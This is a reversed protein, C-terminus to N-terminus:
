MYYGFEKKFREMDLYPIEGKGVQYSNTIVFSDRMRVVMNEVEEDSFRNIHLPIEKNDRVYVAIKYELNERYGDPREFSTEIIM